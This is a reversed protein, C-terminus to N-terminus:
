DKILAINLNVFASMKLVYQDYMFSKGEGSLLGCEKEWEKRGDKRGKRKNHM